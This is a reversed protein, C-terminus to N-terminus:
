SLVDDRGFLSSFGEYLIKGAARIDPPLQESYHDFFCECPRAIKKPRGWTVSSWGFKVPDFFYNVTQPEPRPRSRLLKRLRRM